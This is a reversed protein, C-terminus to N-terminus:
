CGLIHSFLISPLWVVLWVIIPNDDDMDRNGCRDNVDDSTRQVSAGARAGGEAGAGQAVALGPVEDHGAGRESLPM